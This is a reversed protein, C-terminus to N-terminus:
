RLLMLVEGLTRAGPAVYQAVYGAVLTLAAVLALPKWTAHLVTGEWDPEDMRRVSKVLGGALLASFAADALVHPAAVILFAVGGGIAALLALLVIGLAVVLCGDDGVDVSGVSDFVGGVPAGVADGWSGSAGGGGSTGGGGHFVSGGGRPMVDVNSLADSGMDLPLPRAGVYALWLRIFLYFAGYSVALALLWRLAMSHVPLGLLLRNALVGTGITAALMLSMHFRLWFRQVLQGRYEGRRAEIQALRSQSAGTQPLAM